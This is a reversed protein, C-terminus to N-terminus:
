EGAMPEWTRGCWLEWCLRKGALEPARAVGLSGKIGTGGPSRSFSFRRSWSMKALPFSDSGWFLFGADGFCCSSAAGLGSRKLSRSGGGGTETHAPTRPPPPGWPRGGTLLLAVSRDGSWADDQATTFSISSRFSNRLSMSARPWPLANRAIMRASIEWTPPMPGQSPSVLSAPAWREPPPPREFGLGSAWSAEKEGKASAAPFPLCQGCASRPVGSPGPWGRTQGVRAELWPWEASGLGRPRLSGVGCGDCVGGYPGSDCGPLCPGPHGEPVQQGSVEALFM